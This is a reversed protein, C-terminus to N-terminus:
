RAFHTGSSRKAPGIRRVTSDAGVGALTLNRLYRLGIAALLLLVGLGLLVNGVSPSSPPAPAPAADAAPAAADAPEAPELTKLARTLAAIEAEKDRKPAPAATAPAPAPTTMKARFGEQEAESKNAFYKEKCRVAEAPDKAHSVNCFHVARADKAEDSGVVRICEKHEPSNVYPFHRTCEGFSWLRMDLSGAGTAAGVAIASKGADAATARAGAGNAQALADAPLISMCALVVISVGSAFVAVKTMTSGM